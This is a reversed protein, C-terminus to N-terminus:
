RGEIPWTQEVRVWGMGFTAGKGVHLAEVARFLPLLPELDGALTLDGVFGGFLMATNQRNSFRRWDHWRLTSREITLTSAHDLLSRFNWDVAANPVHFTATELVRRLMQFTLQRPTPHAVLKGQVKFRTPSRFRLTVSDLSFGNAAPEAGTSGSEASCSSVAFPAKGAGLGTTAMREVALRVYPEYAIAQGFLILDFGLREGPLLERRSDAVELVYPRPAEKLGVLFPPAEGEIFTEFTRAHACVTRLACSECAQGAGMTCATRRLAHGFAGRLMSGKFESVRAISLSTLEFHLRRFPIAPLLLHSTGAPRRFVATAGSVSAAPL